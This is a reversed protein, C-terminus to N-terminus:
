VSRERAQPPVPLRALNLAKHGMQATPTRIERPASPFGRLSRGKGKGRHRGQPRVRVEPESIRGRAGVAASCRRHGPGRHLGVDVAIETRAQAVVGGKDGQAARSPVRASGVRRVVGGVSPSPAPAGGTQRSGRERRTPSQGPAPFTEAPRGGGGANRPSPLPPTPPAAGPGGGRARRGPLAGGSSENSRKSWEACFTPCTAGSPRKVRHPVCFSRLTDVRNLPISSPRPPTEIV